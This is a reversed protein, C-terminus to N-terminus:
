ARYCLLVLSRPALEILGSVLQAEGTGATNLLQHWQGGPQQVPLSFERSGDSTSVLLLLPEDGTRNAVRGAVKAELELCELDEKSGLLHPWLVKLAVNRETPLHEAVFVLGHGGQALLREVRYRESFIYGPRFPQLSEPLVLSRCWDKDAPLVTRSRWVDTSCGFAALEVIERAVPDTSRRSM